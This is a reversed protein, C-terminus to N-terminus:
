KMLMLKKVANSEEVQLKLFYLGSALRSGDFTVSHAGAEQQGEVLTTVLRGATDYVKLSVWSSAPLTYRIATAPNFPNPYNQELGYAMPADTRSNSESGTLYPAFSEGTNNWNDVIPGGNGDALKTYTFGASDWRATPYLGVYGRYTYTGPAAAGPVNQTRLRSISLNGPMTLNLPGLLPGEWQNLPTYQMIWADFIAPNAPDPPM